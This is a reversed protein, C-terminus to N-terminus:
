IRWKQNLLGLPIQKRLGHGYKKLTWEDFVVVFFMVCFRCERQSGLEPFRTQWQDIDLNERTYFWNGNSNKIKEPSVGWLSGSRRTERFTSFLKVIFQFNTPFKKVYAVVYFSFITCSIGYILAALNKKPERKHALWIDQKEQIKMRPHGQGTDKDNFIYRLYKFDNLTLDTRCELWGIM